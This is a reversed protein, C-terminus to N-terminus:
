GWVRESQFQARVQQAVTLNNLKTVAFKRAMQRILPLDDSESLLRAAFEDPTGRLVLGNTGDEVYHEAITEPIAVAAGCAMAEVLSTLGAPNTRTQTPLCVLWAGAYLARLEVDSPKILIHTYSELNESALQLRAAEATHINYTARVYPLGMMRAVQAAYTEDRDPGGVTLVYGRKELGFHALVDDMGVPDAHWFQSDVSVPVFVVPCSVGMAELQRKQTMSVVVVARARDIVRRLLFDYARASLREDSVGPVKWTHVILGPNRRVWSALAGAVVPYDPALVNVNVEGALLAPLHRLVDALLNGTPGKPYVRVDCGRFVEEYLAAVHQRVGFANLPLTWIHTSLFLNVAM